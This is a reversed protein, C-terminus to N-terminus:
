LGLITSFVPASSYQNYSCVVSTGSFKSDGPLTFTSESGQSLRTSGPHTVGYTGPDTGNLEWRITAPESTVCHFLSSTGFCVTQNTPSEIITALGICFSLM